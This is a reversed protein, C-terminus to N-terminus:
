SSKDANLNYRHSQPSIPALSISTDIAGAKAMLFLYLAAVIFQFAMKQFPTLGENRKKAFKTLDDTVGVLGFAVAMGLTILMPASLKDFFVVSLIVCVVTCPIIFFIGGMTPTGEKSAHWRPGIELIKQGLKKSKLVPILFRGLLASAILCIVLSIIFSLYM